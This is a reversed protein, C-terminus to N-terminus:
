EASQEQQVLELVPQEEAAGGSAGGASGASGSSSSSAEQGIAPLAIM